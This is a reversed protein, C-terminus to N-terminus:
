EELVVTQPLALSRPLCFDDGKEKVRVDYNIDINGSFVIAEDRSIISGNM